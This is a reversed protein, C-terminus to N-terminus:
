QYFDYDSDSKKVIKKYATEFDKALVVYRNKRVAQMGAELCISQIEAASIKEPRSVFSELDVDDGLNMKSCIVQVHLLTPSLWFFISGATSIRCCCGRWYKEILAALFLVFCVALCLWLSTQCLHLTISPMM